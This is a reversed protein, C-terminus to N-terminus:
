HTVVLGVGQDDAGAGDAAKVAGNELAGAAGDAGHHTGFVVGDFRVAEAEFAGEAVNGPRRVVQVLVAVARVVGRVVHDEGGLHQGTAVAGAQDAGPHALAGVDHQDLVAEVDFPFQGVGEGVVRDDAAQREDGDATDGGTFDLVVGVAPQDHAAVGATQVVVALGEAVQEHFAADVDLKGLFHDAFAPEFADPVGGEVREGHEGIAGVGVGHEVGGAAFFQHAFHHLFHDVGGFGVAVRQGRLDDVAVDVAGAFHRGVFVAHRQVVEVVAGNLEVGYEAIHHGDGVLM